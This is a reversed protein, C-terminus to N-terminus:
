EFVFMADKFNLLSNAKDLNIYGEYYRSIEYLYGEHISYGIVQM